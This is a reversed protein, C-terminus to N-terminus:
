AKIEEAKFSVNYRRLLTVLNLYDDTSRTEIHAPEVKIKYQRVQKKTYTILGKPVSGM